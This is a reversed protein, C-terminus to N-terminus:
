RRPLMRGRAMTSRRHDLALRGAAGVLAITQNLRWILTRARSSHVKIRIRRWEFCEYITCRHLQTQRGRLLPQLSFKSERSEARCWINRNLNDRRGGSGRRMNGGDLDRFDGSHRTRDLGLDDDLGLRYKIHGRVPNKICIDDHGSYRHSGGAFCLRGRRRDPLKDLRPLRNHTRSLRRALTHKRKSAVARDDNGPKVRCDM